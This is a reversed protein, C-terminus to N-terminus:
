LLEGCPAVEEALCKWWVPKVNDSLVKLSRLDHVQLEVPSSKNSQNFFQIRHAIAVSEKHSVSTHESATTIVEDTTPKRRVM